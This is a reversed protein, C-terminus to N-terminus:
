IVLVMLNTKPIGLMKTVYYSDRKLINASMSDIPNLEINRFNNSIIGRYLSFLNTYSNPVKATIGLYFGIYGLKPDIEAKLREIDIIDYPYNEEHSM